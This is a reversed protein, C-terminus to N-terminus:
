FISNLAHKYAEKCLCQIRLFEFGIHDMLGWCVHTLPQLQVRSNLLWQQWSMIRQSYTSQYYYYYYYDSCNVTKFTFTLTKYMDLSCNVFYCNIPCGGIELYETTQYLSSSSLFLHSYFSTQNLLLSCSSENVLIFFLTDLM